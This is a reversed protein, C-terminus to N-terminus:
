DFTLGSPKTFGAKAPSRQASRLFYAFEPIDVFWSHRVGARLSADASVKLAIQAFPPTKAFTESYPM